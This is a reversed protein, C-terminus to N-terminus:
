GDETEWPRPIPLAVGNDAMEHERRYHIGARGGCVPCPTCHWCCGAIGDKPHCKWSVMCDHTQDDWGCM